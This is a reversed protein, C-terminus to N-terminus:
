RSRRARAAGGHAAVATPRRRPTAPPRRTPRPSTAPATPATTPPRRPDARPPTPRPPPRRPRTARRTAAHRRPAAPRLADYANVLRALDAGPLDRRRGPRRQVRDGDAQMSDAYGVWICATIRPTAGCFWADGNDDTTGTKGWTPDGTQALQGTGSSVVTSLVRSPPRPSRRTSCRSAIVQQRRQRRDPGRGAHRRDHRRLRRRHSSSGSRDATSDAAMTGSIRKGDEALTNYAHGDGAPHRRDRPRRPDACPQLARWPGGDIRTSTPRHLPRDRDGDEGRDAAVNQVGAQTGIQSYVSNDSYTTATASRPRASTSTTTTTSTSSTTSSSRGQRAEEDGQGHVPVAQAALQLDRRDFPGALAGDGAHVAQVILGAPPTRQHRPQLREQYDPGGVMALVGSTANDLVVVARDARDRRADVAVIARSRTRSSSTSRHSSRCDAASRRAPATATSSSSACGRPSTPRRRTRRGAAPDAHPTPLPQQAYSAYEDQTIYGQDAMNQLVLNRRELRPEPFNRPSYASPSSIIGALM